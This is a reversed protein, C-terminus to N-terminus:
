TENEVPWGSTVGIMTLFAEEEHSLVHVPVGSGREVDAVIRPADAARRLPETGLMTITSACLERARAAYGALVHALRDRAQAGLHARDDVASGLGLFSSEDLLPRLRHDAIAAVLLHVSNSGLDVAAGVAPRPTGPNGGHGGPRSDARPEVTESM